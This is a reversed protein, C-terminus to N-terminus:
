PCITSDFLAGGDVCTGGDGQSRPVCVVVEGACGAGSPDVATFTIHYVRGNGGGAREARVWPSAGPLGVADPCTNGSGMGEVPEDQRVGIVSIAVPDGEPDTVGLIQVEVYEHNPPWLDDPQATAGTCDPPLRVIVAERGVCALAPPLFLLGLISGFRVLPHHVNM